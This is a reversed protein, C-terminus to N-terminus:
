AIEKIYYIEGGETKPSKKFGLKLLYKEHASVNTKVKFRAINKDRFVYSKREYLYSGFKFDRFKPVVYDMLVQATAGDEMKYAFIGMPIMNRFMIHTKAAKLEEYSVAPFFSRIDDEYFNYFKEFYSEGINELEDIKFCATAKSLDIIYWVNMLSIYGNAIALPWAELLIGYGTFLLCGILNIWRMKWVSSLSLSIAVFLSAFYGMIEINRASLLEEM